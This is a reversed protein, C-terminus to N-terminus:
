QGLEAPTRGMKQFRTRDMKQFVTRASTGVIFCHLIM